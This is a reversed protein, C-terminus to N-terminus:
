EECAQVSQEGEHKNEASLNAMQKLFICVVSLYMKRGTV